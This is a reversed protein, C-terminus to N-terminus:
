SGGSSRVTLQAVTPQAYFVTIRATASGSPGIGTDNTAIEFTASTQDKPIVVTTRSQPGNGILPGVVANRSDSYIVVNTGGALKSAQKLTVTAKVQERSKGNPNPDDFTLEKIGVPIVASVDVQLNHSDPGPQPNCWTCGPDPFRTLEYGGCAAIGWSTCYTDALTPQFSTTFNLTSGSPDGLLTTTQWHSSGHLELTGRSLNNPRNPTGASGLSLDFCGGDSYSGPRVDCGNRASFEWKAANATAQDVVAWDPIAHNQVQGVSTNTGVGPGRPRSLRYGLTFQEGALYSAAAERTPSHSRLSLKPDTGANPGVSVDAIGTWWARELNFRQKQFVGDWEFPDDMVAFSGGTPKFTGDVSYSVVQFDGGPTNANDLYVDVTHTMDWSASQPGVRPAYIPHPFNPCSCEGGDGALAPRPTLAGGPFTVSISTHQVEPPLTNTAQAALAASRARAPLLPHKAAIFERRVMAALRRAEQRRALRRGRAPLRAGGLPLFRRADMLSLRPVGDSVVRRYLAVRSFHEGRTPVARFGTLDYLAREHHARGVDFAVVSAGADLFRRLRGARRGLERPTSTDGDVLLAEYRGPRRLRSLTARRVEMRRGLRHQLARLVPSSVPEFALVDISRAAHGPSAPASTPLAVLAAGAVTLAILLGLPMGRRGTV